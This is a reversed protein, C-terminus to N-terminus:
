RRTKGGGDGLADNLQVNDILEHAGAIDDDSDAAAADGDDLGLVAKATDRRDDILVTCAGRSACSTRASRSMMRVATSATHMFKLLGSWFSSEEM